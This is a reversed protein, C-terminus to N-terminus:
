ILSKVTSIIPIFRLKKLDYFFFRKLYRKFLLRKQGATFTFHNIMLNFDNRFRPALITASKKSISASHKRYSGLLEPMVYIKEGTLFTIFLKMFTDQSHCSLLWEAKTFKKFSLDNRIMMTSNRTEAKKGISIDSFTYSLPKLNESAYIIRSDENVLYSYHCCIVYGANNELFEVQKQLKKPDNFYDDGDCIAIYRGRAKDIIRNYNKIVGVNNDSIVMQILDPYKLSYERVINRTNDTSLDEGIIIEFRFTTTQMLFSDIAEKIYREVNYATCCISVLIESSTSLSSM